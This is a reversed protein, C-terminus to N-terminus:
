FALELQLENFLIRFSEENVVEDNQGMSSIALTAAQSIGLGQHAEAFEDWFKEGSSDGRRLQASSFFGSVKSGVLSNNLNAPSSVHGSRFLSSM